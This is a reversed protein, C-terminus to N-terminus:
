QRLSLTDIITSIEEIPVTLGVRHDTMTGETFDYTRIRETPQEKKLKELEHNKIEAYHKRLKAQLLKYAREKNQLQSREDQCAVAIGTPLHTIRVASETKNVHQGGKGGARYTDIRLDNENIILEAYQKKPYVSVTVEGIQNKGYLAKHIGREHKLQGYIQQLPPMRGGTSSLIDDRSYIKRLYKELKRGWETGDSRIEIVAEQEEANNRNQLLENLRDTHIKIEAELLEKLERDTTKESEKVTKKLLTYEDAIAAIEDAEQALKRLMQNHAIVEPSVIFESIEDYRLKIKKAHKLLQATFDNM